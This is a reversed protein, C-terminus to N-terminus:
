VYHMAILDEFALGVSKFLVIGSCVKGRENGQLISGLDLKVKSDNISGEALPILLDGSELICTKWSDCVISSRIITLTDLERSNPRANGVAIVCANQPIWRGDLVPAESSTCTVLIDADAVVEEASNAIEVTTDVVGQAARAFEEQRMSLHPSYVRVSRIHRVASAAQIHPLCLTGTGLVGLTEADARALHRMAVGSVAATRCATIVTSDMIALPMGTATDLLILLGLIRPLGYCSPNEKFNTNIKIGLGHTPMYCPMFAGYGRGGVVTLRIRQPMEVEGNAFAIFGAEMQDIMEKMVLHRRVESMSVMLTM